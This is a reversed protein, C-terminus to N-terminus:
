TKIVDKAGFPVKTTSCHFIVVGTCRLRADSGGDRWSRLGLYSRETVTAGVDARSAQLCTISNRLICQASGIM